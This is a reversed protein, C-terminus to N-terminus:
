LLTAPDPPVRMELVVKIANLINGATLQDEHIMLLPRETADEDFHVFADPSAGEARAAELAAEKEAKTLKRAGDHKEIPVMTPDEGLVLRLMEKRYAAAGSHIEATSVGASLSTEVATGDPAEHSTGDENIWRAFACLHADVSNDRYDEEVSVAILEGSDLKVVAEPAPAGKKSVQYLGPANEEWPISPDRKAIKKKVISYGM